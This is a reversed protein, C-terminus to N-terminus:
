PNCNRQRFCKLDKVAENSRPISGTKAAKNAQVIPPSVKIGMLANPPNNIIIEIIIDSVGIYSNDGPSNNNLTPGPSQPKGTSYRNGVLFSSSPCTSEPSFAANSTCRFARRRGLLAQCSCPKLKYDV